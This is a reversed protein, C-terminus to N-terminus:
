KNRHRGHTRREGGGGIGAPLLKAANSGGRIAARVLRSTCLSKKEREETGLDRKLANISSPNKRENREVRRPTDSLLVVGQTKKGVGRKRGTGERSLSKLSFFTLYLPRAHFRGYVAFRSTEKNRRQLSRPILRIPARQSGEEDRYLRPHETERFSRKKRTQSYM